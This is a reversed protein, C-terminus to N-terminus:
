FAFRYDYDMTPRVRADGKRGEGSESLSTLSSDEKGFAGSFNGDGYRYLTKTFTFFNKKQVVQEKSLNALTTLALIYGSQSLLKWHMREAATTLHCLAM